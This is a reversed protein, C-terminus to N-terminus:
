TLFVSKEQTGLAITLHNVQGIPVPMGLLAFPLYFKNTIHTETKFAYKRRM